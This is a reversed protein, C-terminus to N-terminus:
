WDVKEIKAKRDISDLYLELTLRYEKVKKTLFLTVIDFPTKKSQDLLIRYNGEDFYINAEENGTVLFILDNALTLLQEDTKKILPM